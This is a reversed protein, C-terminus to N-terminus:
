SFTASLIPVNSVPIERKRKRKQLEKLPKPTLHTRRKNGILNANSVVTHDM